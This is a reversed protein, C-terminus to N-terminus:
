KVENTVGGYKKNFSDWANVEENITLKKKFLSKFWKM